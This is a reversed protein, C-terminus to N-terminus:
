TSSPPADSTTPSLSSLSSSLMAFCASCATTLETDHFGLYAADYTFDGTAEPHKAQEETLFRTLTVINTNVKESEHMKNGNSAM